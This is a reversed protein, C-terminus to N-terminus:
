YKKESAFTKKRGPFFGENLLSENELMVRKKTDFLFHM